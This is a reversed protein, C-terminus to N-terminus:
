TGPHRQCQTPWTHLWRAQRHHTLSESCLFQPLSSSPPAPQKGLVSTRPHHFCKFARRTFTFSNQTIEDSTKAPNRTKFVSLWLCAGTLLGQPQRRRQHVKLITAGGQSMMAWVIALHWSNQHSSKPPKPPPKSHAFAPSQLQSPHPLLFIYIAWTAESSVFSRPPNGPGTLVAASQPCPQAKKKEM